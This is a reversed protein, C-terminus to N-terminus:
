KAEQAAEYAEVAPPAPLPMWHTVDNCWEGNRSKGNRDCWPLNIVDDEDYFGISVLGNKRAIIVRVSDEPLRYGVSIWEM